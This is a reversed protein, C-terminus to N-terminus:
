DVEPFSRYTKGDFTTYTKRKKNDGDSTEVPTPFSGSDSSSSGGSSDDGMMEAGGLGPGGDMAGRRWKKGGLGPGGDMVMAGSPDGGLAKAGGLSGGFGPGGGMAGRRKKGGLGPHWGLEAEYSSGSSEYDDALLQQLRKGAFKLFWQPLEPPKGPGSSRYKAMTEDLIEEQVLSEDIPAQYGKDSVDLADKSLTIKINACLVGFPVEPDGETLLDDFVANFERRDKAVEVGGFGQNFYCEELDRISTVQHLGKFCRKIIEATTVATSMATGCAYLTISKKDMEMFLKAAQSVYEEVTGYSMVNIIETQDETGSLRAKKEPSQDMLQM